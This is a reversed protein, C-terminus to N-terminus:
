RGVVQNVMKGVVWNGCFVMVVCFAIVLNGALTQFLPAVFEPAMVRAAGMIFFPLFSLVQAAMRTQATVAEVYRRDGEKAYVSELLHRFVGVLNCGTRSYVKLAVALSKLDEWGTEECVKETAEVFTSGTRTRRLIEAFVERAPSPMSPVADEFAQYPSLGGQLASSLVTLAHGYQARLLARRAAARRRELIGAVFFGGPAAALALHVQGTVGYAVVMCGLIGALLYASKRAAGEPAYRARFEDAVPVQKPRMLTWVVLFAALSACLVAGLELM